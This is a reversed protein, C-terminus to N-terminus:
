KKLLILQAMTKLHRATATRVDTRLGRQFSMGAAPNNADIDWIEEKYFLEFKQKRNYCVRSKKDFNIDWIWEEAM